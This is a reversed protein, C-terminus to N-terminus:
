IAEKTSARHFTYGAHHLVGQDFEGCAWFGLDDRYDIRNGTIWYSGQFANERGGRTEHYRGDESLTQHVFGHEDIWTGLYGAPTPVSHELEDSPGGNKQGAAVSGEALKGKTFVTCELTSPVISEAADYLPAETNQASLIIFTAINGPALTRTRHESGTATIAGGEVLEALGPLGPLIIRGSCDIVTAHDDEAANVLGTGVAVVRDAGLLLEACDFNGILPDNTVIRANIFLLPGDNM